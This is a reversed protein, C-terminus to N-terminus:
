EGCSHEARESQSQPPAGRNKGRIFVQRASPESLSPTRGRIVRCFNSKGGTLFNRSIKSNEPMDTM